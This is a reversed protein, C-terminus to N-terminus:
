LFTSQCLVSPENRGLVGTLENERTVNSDALFKDKMKLVKSVVFHRQTKHILVFYKGASINDFKIGVRNKRQQNHTILKLFASSKNKKGAIRKNNTKTYLSCAQTVAAALTILSDSYSYKM